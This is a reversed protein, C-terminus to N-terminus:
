FLNGSTVSSAHRTLISSKQREVFRVDSNNTELVQVALSLARFSSVLDQYLKSYGVLALSLNLGEDEVAANFNIHIPSFLNVNEEM